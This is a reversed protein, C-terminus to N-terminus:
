RSKPFGCLEFAFVHVDNNCAEILLAVFIDGNVDSLVDVFTM